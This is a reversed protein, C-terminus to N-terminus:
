LHRRTPMEQVEVLEPASVPADDLRRALRAAWPSATIGHAFISVLITWVAVSFATDAVTGSLQDFVLLAFLISALGRPGFWGIFLRTEFRTRSGALAVLVPLMRVVTLSLM